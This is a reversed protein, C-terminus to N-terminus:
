FELKWGKRETYMKLTIAKCSGLGALIWELPAPGTDGGGLASPEDAGLQFQRISVDQGYRSTNSSVRVLTM